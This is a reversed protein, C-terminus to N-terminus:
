SDLKVPNNLLSRGSRFECIAIVERGSEMRDVARNCVQVRFPRKQKEFKLQLLYRWHLGRSCLTVLNKLWYLFRNCVSHCEVAIFMLVTCVTVLFLCAAGMFWPQITIDPPLRPGLPSLEPSSAFCLWSYVCVCRLISSSSCFRWKSIKGVGHVTRWTSDSCTMWCTRGLLIYCTLLKSIQPFTIDTPEWEGMTAGLCTFPMETHWLLTNAAGLYLLCTSILSIEVPDRFVRWSRVECRRVWWLSPTEEM